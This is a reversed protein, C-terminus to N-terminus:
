HHIYLGLIMLVLTIFIGIFWKMTDHKTNKIEGKLPMEMKLVDEKMSRKYAPAQQRVKNEIIKKVVEALIKARAKHQKLDKRFMGRSKIETTSMTM